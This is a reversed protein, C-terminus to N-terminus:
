MKKLNALQIRRAGVLNKAYCDALCKSGDFISANEGSGAFFAVLSLDDASAISPADLRVALSDQSEVVNAM